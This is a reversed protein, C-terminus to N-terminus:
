YMKAKESTFISSAQDVGICTDSYSAFV